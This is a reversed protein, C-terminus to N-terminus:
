RVTSLIKYYFPLLILPELCMKKKTTDDSFLFLSLDRLGESESCILHEIAEDITLKESHTITIQDANLEAEIVAQNDTVIQGDGM